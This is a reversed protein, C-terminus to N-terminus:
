GALEASADWLISLPLAWMREAIQHSEQSLGLVAGGLFRPGLRKALAHIGSFHASRYTETAKIELLFVGGDAFELVLDVELGDRNRFHRLDFEEGSWGQQKRLELAALAELHPGLREAALPDVLADPHQRSLRLALATDSVSLKRRGVERKTLNPGWPGVDTTLFLTRLAGLYNAISSKPIGLQDAIRAQVLEGSQNAAVLRLVAGLRESSLTPSVDTLDRTLIREIYSDIWHHRTRQSLTGLEPYGGAAIAAVYDRRNWRSRFDQPTPPLARVWSAFDDRHGALEGQSLGHLHLTAARGALSDPTRPSRLLDSSGTLLFRGPRRDRDITAKIALLLAPVRQIEDLVLMQQPHATVFAQADRSIATRTAEDDLSFTRHPRNSALQAAFTSKGVQRAGAIVVAPFTNLFEQGLPLLHRQLLEM